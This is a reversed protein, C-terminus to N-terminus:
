YGRRLGVVRRLEPEKSTRTPMKIRSLRIINAIVDCVGRVDHRLLGAGDAQVDRADDESDARPTGFKEVVVGEEIAQEGAAEQVRSEQEGRERQVAPERAGPTGLAGHPGEPLLLVISEQQDVMEDDVRRAPRVKPLGVGVRGIGAVRLSRLARAEQM